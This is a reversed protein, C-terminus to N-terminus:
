GKRKPKAYVARVDCSRVVDVDMECHSLRPYYEYTDCLACSEYQAILANLGDTDRDIQAMGIVITRKLPPFKPKVEMMVPIPEDPIYIKTSSTVILGNPDAKGFELLRCKCSRM